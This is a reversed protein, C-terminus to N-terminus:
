LRTQASRVEPGREMSASRQPSSETAGKTLDSGNTTPKAPLLGIEKLRADVLKPLRKEILEFYKDALAKMRGFDRGKHHYDMRCPTCCFKQDPRAPKYLKDCQACRRRRLKAWEAKLGM